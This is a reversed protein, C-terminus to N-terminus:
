RGSAITACAVCRKASPMAARRAAPIPEGCQVCENAGEGALTASARSVAADRARETNRAALEHNREDM